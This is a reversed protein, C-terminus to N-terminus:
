RVPTSHMFCPSPCPLRPFRIVSSARTVHCGQTRVHVTVLSDERPHYKGDGRKIVKYQMDGSPHMWFLLSCVLIRSLLRCFGAELSLCAGHTDEWVQLGSATQVVGEKLLNESFFKEEMEQATMTIETSLQSVAGHLLAAVIFLARRGM